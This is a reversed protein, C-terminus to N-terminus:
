LHEFYFLLKQLAFFKLVLQWSIDINLYFAM